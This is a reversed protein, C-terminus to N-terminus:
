GWSWVCNAGRSSQLLEWALAGQEPTVDDVLGQLIRGQSSHMKIMTQPSWLSRLVESRTGEPGQVARTVLTNLRGAGTERVGESGTKTGLM